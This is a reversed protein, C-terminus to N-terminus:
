DNQKEKTHKGVYLFHTFMQNFITDLYACLRVNSASVSVWINVRFDKKSRLFRSNLGYEETKLLSGTPFSIPNPIIYHKHSERHITHRPHTFM